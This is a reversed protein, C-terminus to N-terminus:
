SSGGLGTKKNEGELLPDGSHSSHGLSVHFKHCWWYNDSENNTTRRVHNLDLDTKQENKFLVNM